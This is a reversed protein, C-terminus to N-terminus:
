VSDLFSGVGRTENRSKLLPKCTALASGNVLQDARTLAQVKV